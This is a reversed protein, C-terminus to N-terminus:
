NNPNNAIQGTDVEEATQDRVEKVEVEFNLEEGALPHNMDFKVSKESVEVVEAVTTQPGIDTEIEVELQIGVDLNEIGKFEEKPADQVLEEQYDGYAENPMIKVSFKDGKKRGELANELGVIIDGAGHLYPLPEAGISTDLVDGQNNKLTYDILVVKNKTIEMKKSRVHKLM